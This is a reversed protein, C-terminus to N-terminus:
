KRVFKEGFYGPKVALPTVLTKGYSGLVVGAGKEVRGRGRGIGRGTGRGRGRSALSEKGSAEISLSFM